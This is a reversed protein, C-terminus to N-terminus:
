VTSLEGDQSSHSSVPDGDRLGVRKRRYAVIGLGIGLLALTGPEPVSTLKIPVSDGPELFRRGTSPILQLTTSAPTTFLEGNALQLTIPNSGASLFLQLGVMACPCSPLARDPGGVFLLTTPTTLAGASQSAENVSLTLNSLGLQMSTMGTPDLIVKFASVGQLNTGLYQLQGITISNAWATGTTGAVMLLLALWRRM